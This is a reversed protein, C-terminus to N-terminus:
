SVNWVDKLVWEFLIEKLFKGKEGILRLRETRYVRSTNMHTPGM